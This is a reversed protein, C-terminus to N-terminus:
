FLLGLQATTKQVTEFGDGNKRKRFRFERAAEVYLSGGLHYVMELLFLSREDLSVLDELLTEEASARIGRKIYFARADMVDVLNTEILRMGFRPDSNQGEGNYDEYVAAFHGAEQIYYGIHGVWGQTPASPRLDPVIGYLQGPVVEGPLPGTRARYEYDSGFLGPEFGQEFSRYEGKMFLQDAELSVGAANGRLLLPEEESGAAVPYSVAGLEDYLKVRYSDREILPVAASLSFANLPDEEHGYEPGFISGLVYPIPNADFVFTGGLELRKILPAKANIYSHFVFLEAQDVNNVLASVGWNERNINTWVGRRDQNSYHEVLLGHAARTEFLEGYRIHFPDHPDAWELYRVARAAADFSDWEEGDETLLRTSGISSDEISADGVLLAAKLGASFEGLRIQPRLEFRWYPQGELTTMGIFAALSMPRVAEARPSLRRLDEVHIQAGASFAICCAAWAAFVASLAARARRTGRRTGHTKQYVATEM